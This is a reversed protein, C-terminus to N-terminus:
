SRPWARPGRRGIIALGLLLYHAYGLRKLEARVEVPNEIVDDINRSGTRGLASCVPNTTLGLLDFIRDYTPQHVGPDELDGEYTLALHPLGALAEFEQATQNERSKIYVALEGPDISVKALPGESAKHLWKRRKEGVLTSLAQYVVNKRRLYILKWGAAELDRLFAKLDAIGQTGLSRITSPRSAGGKAGSATGCSKAM